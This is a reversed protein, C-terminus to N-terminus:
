WGKIDEWLDRWHPNTVNILKEKNIRNGGKIRKEEDIAEEITSYPGFYVLKICNYRATFSDPYIKQKHQQVRNYLDATVGTYLVKNNLSAMIYVTGGRQM